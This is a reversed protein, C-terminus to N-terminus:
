QEALIEKKLVLSAWVALCWRHKFYSFGAFSEGAEIRVFVSKDQDSGAM